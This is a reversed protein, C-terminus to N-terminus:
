EPQTPRRSSDPFYEAGEKWARVKTRFSLWQLRTGPLAGSNEGTAEQEELAMLQNAIADIEQDRWANEATISLVSEEAAAFRDYVWQPIDPYLVEDLELVMAESVARLDGNEKIAYM